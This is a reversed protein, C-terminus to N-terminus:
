SGNWLTSRSPSNTRTARTRQGRHGAAAKEEATWRLPVGPRHPPFGSTPDYWMPTRCIPCAVKRRTTYRKYKRHGRFPCLKSM